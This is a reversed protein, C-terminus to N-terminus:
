KELDGLVDASELDITRNSQQLELLELIIAVATLILGILFAALTIGAPIPKSLSVSILLAVAIFCGVATYLVRAAWSVLHLRRHFIVMELRITSRRNSSTNVERYERALARVRDSTSIYRTNVGSALIATASVMVVPTVATAVVKLPDGIQDILPV